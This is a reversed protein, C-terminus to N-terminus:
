LTSWNFNRLTRIIRKYKNTRDSQFFWFLYWHYWNWNRIQWLGFSNSLYRFHSKLHIKMYFLWWIHNSKFHYTGSSIPAVSYSCSTTTTVTYSSSYGPNQVYTCNQSVTSGCTSKRFYSIQKLLPSNWKMKKEFFFLLYKLISVHIYLLRWIRLRLKRWSFGRKLYMRHREFM